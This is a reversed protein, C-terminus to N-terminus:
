SSVSEDNQKIEIGLSMEESMTKIKNVLEEVEKEKKIKYVSVKEGMYISAFSVKSKKSVEVKTVNQIKIRKYSFYNGIFLLLAAIGLFVWGLIIDMGEGDYHSSTRSPEESYARSVIFCIIAAIYFLISKATMKRISFFDKKKM